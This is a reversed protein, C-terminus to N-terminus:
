KVILKTIKTRIKEMQEEGLIDELSNSETFDKVAEELNEKLKDEDINEMTKVFRKNLAEKFEDTDTWDSFYSIDDIENDFRSTFLKNESNIVYNKYQSYLQNAFEEDTTLRQKFNYFLFNAQKEALLRLTEQNLWDQQEKTLEIELKM